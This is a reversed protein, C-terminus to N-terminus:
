KRHDVAALDPSHPTSQAEKPRLIRRESQSQGPAQRILVVEAPDLQIQEIRCLAVGDRFEDGVRFDKPRVSPPGFRLVALATDTLLRERGVLVVTKQSQEDWLTASPTMEYKGDIEPNGVWDRQSASIKNLTLGLSEFRHGERALLTEPSGPRVFAALYNGAAGFCGVLQLRYPERMVALLEVDASAVANASIPPPRLETEPPDFLEGGGAEPARGAWLGSAGQLPHGEGIEIPGSPQVSEVAVSYKSGQQFPEVEVRRVLLAESSTALANLFDRLVRTQGSFEVLVAQGEIQGAVRRDLVSDLQFFDEGGAPSGDTGPGHLSERRVSLLQGPQAAFLKGLVLQISRLQARVAAIQNRPPGEHAYTALGFNEAPRLAVEHQAALQRLEVTADAIEIFADFTKKPLPATDRSVERITLTTALGANMEVPLEDIQWQFQSRLKTNRTLTALEGRVHHRLSQIWWIGGGVLIM